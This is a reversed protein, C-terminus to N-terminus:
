QNGFVGRLTKELLQQEPRQGAGEKKLLRKGMEKGITEGAKERIQRGLIEGSLSFRPSGVTGTAKLPLVGWGQEDTVLSGVTGRAVKGTIRPAVRTDIIMNLSNDFGVSGKPKMRIDSGDLEADLLVQRGGVRYTGAFTNFRVIRLEESGLFRALESVFGRGTLRGNRVAFDGSGALNQKVAAPTAGHGSLDAKASLVGSLSGAAKPAFAAVLRDAQVGQLSLRTSYSFGRIGLDIRAIDAFTGGAVGGKLDEINLVNDALRYRFSLGSVTLGRYTVAGISAGGGVALPLNFPAPEAGGATAASSAARTQGKKSALLADLDLAKGSASLEVHLPKKDLSSTKLQITYSNKGLAIAFDRSALSGNSLAITGTLVPFQGGAAFRVEKLRIDGEKLMAFPARVTGALRIKAMLGGTPSLKRIQASIGAPLGATLKALDTDAVSFQGDVVPGVTLRDVTGTFGLSAGPVAAKLSVPFPHDPTLDKVAIGVNSAEYVFPSGFIGKRDDYVMRGDAVSIKAVAFSLPTKEEREAAKPKEKKLLDSFNFSGDNNRVVHIRPAALIVDDVVVRRSLLPLIQYRLHVENVSVFTENGEREHVTLNHLEIGSFIGIKVDGLQIHRQLAKEVRPLITKKVMEPTVLLKVLLSAGGILLVFAGVIIGFVIILKRSIM